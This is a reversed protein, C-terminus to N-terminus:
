PLTQVARKNTRPKRVKKVAQMRAKRREAELRQQEEDSQSYVAGALRSLEAMKKNLTASSLENPEQRDVVEDILAAIADNKTRWEELQEPTISGDEIWTRLLVLLIAQADGSTTRATDIDGPKGSLKRQKGVQDLMLDAQRNLEKLRDPQTARNSMIYSRRAGGTQQIMTLSEGIAELLKDNRDRVLQDQAPTPSPTPTPTATASPTPTPVPAQLAQSALPPQPITAPKDKSPRACFTMGLMLLGIAGLGILVRVRSVQRPEVADAEPEILTIPVEPAPVPSPVPTPAPLGDIELNETSRGNDSM